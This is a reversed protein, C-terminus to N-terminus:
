ARRWFQWWRKPNLEYWICGHPLESAADPSMKYIDGVNIVPRDDPPNKILERLEPDSRLADVAALEAADPDDADVALSKISGRPLTVGDVVVHFNTCDLEVAYAPM